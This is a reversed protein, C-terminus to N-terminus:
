EARLATLPDVRAARRAPVWAATVAAITLMLMLALLTGPDRADVDYLLVELGRGVALAGACGLAIGALALRATQWVVLAITRRPSAGLALRVGIEHRRRAISYSVVGYIGALALLLAMLGFSAFSNGLLKREWQTFHRREEFSM